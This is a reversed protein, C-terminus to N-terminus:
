AVLDAFRQGTGMTTDIDVIPPRFTGTVIDGDDFGDVISDPMALEDLPRGTFGAAMVLDPLDSMGDTAGKLVVEAQTWPAQGAGHLGMITYQRMGSASISIRADREAVFEYRADALVEGLGILLHAMPVRTHRLDAYYRDSQCLWTARFQGLVRLGAKQLCVILDDFRGGEITWGRQMCYERASERIAECSELVVRRALRAMFECWALKVINGEPLSLADAFPSHDHPEVHYINPPGPDIQRVHSVSKTLIAAPSGLGVFVWCPTASIRRIVLEKWTKDWAQELESERLIWESSDCEVNGHLYILCKTGLVSITEPGSIVDIDHNGLHSLANTLALDYNLTIVCDIAGEIMLAAADLYGSNPRAFRFERTPLRTVIEEKSINRLCVFEALASLDEVDHFEGDQLVGDAVLQRHVDRAYESALKLGTPAEVSCGAGIVLAVRGRRSAAAKLLDSPVTGPEPSM